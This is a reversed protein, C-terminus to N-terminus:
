THAGDCVRTGNNAVGCGGDDIKGDGDFAACSVVVGISVGIIGTDIVGIRGAGIGAEVGWGM